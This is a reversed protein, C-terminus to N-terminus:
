ETDSDSSDSDSVRLDERLQQISACWSKDVIKDWSLMTIKDMLQEQDYASTFSNKNTKILGAAKIIGFLKVNPAIDNVSYILDSTGEPVKAFRKIAAKVTKASGEFAQYPFKDDNRKYIAFMGNEVVKPKKAKPPKTDEAPADRKNNEAAPDDDTNLLDLIATRSARSGLRAKDNALVALAGAFIPNIWALILPVLMPHVYSGTVSARKGGANGGKVLIVMDHETLVDDGRLTIGEAMGVIMSKVSKLRHWDAFRADHANCLQAANIYGSPLHMMVPFTGYTAKWFNQWVKETCLAQNAANADTAVGDFKRMEQAM